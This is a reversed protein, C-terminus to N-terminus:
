ELIEFWQKMIAEARFDESRKKARQAYKQRLAPDKILELVADAMLDEEATLATQEMTGTGCVPVLVGYEAKEIGTTKRSIETGPALIERCGADCDTAIIPLGCRGAEVLAMPLGERLSSSVYIDTDALDTWPDDLFGTFVVRDRLGLKETLMTLVNHLEGEGIIKLLVPEGSRDAIKKLARILHWQGKEETLRGMTSITLFHHDKRNKDPANLDCFNYVTVTKGPDIHFTDTMCQRVCESVCVMRDSLEATLWERVALGPSWTEMSHVYTIVRDGSRSFINANNSAPLHSITVDIRYQRKLRRLARIRKLITFIKGLKSGSPPLHLDILQGGYPYVINSGDHVILYVNYHKAFELSMNAAVREAGGKNLTPVLIAINKMNKGGSDSQLIM